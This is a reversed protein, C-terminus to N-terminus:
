VHFVWESRPGFPRTLASRRVTEWGQGLRGGRADREGLAGGERGAFEPQRSYRQRKQGCQDARETVRLFWREGLGLREGDIGVRPWLCRPIHRELLITTAAVQARWLQDRQHAVRWHTDGMMAILLNVMLLFAFVMYSVYLVKIINPTWRQYNIPIDLLGLFLQFMTFLCSSFDRFHPWLDPELTQFTLHFAASLMITFPGLMPFGRGFYILNTWGLVLALSMLIGEGGTETLRLVLITLVLCSYSMIIIHFPGGLATKGFYRRAGYRFIDPIELLLTIIAGVVSIMEGVLRIQDDRSTYAEQLRRQVMVTTDRPDTVNHVRPSLPRHVCCLTFTIIYLIYVLTLLRFYHRGCGEWKLSILEKLPSLDLICLAQPRPSALVLTPISQDDNSSDLHELDYLRTTVGGLRWEGLCRRTMLHQFMVVNGEVAAMKLPTLGQNNPIDGGGGEGGRERELSEILDYTRCCTIRDPQLTLLHFVTNGLSDTARIDAGAAVVARVIEENGTCAAFSLIHEGCYVLAATPPGSQTHPGRTFLNGTARPTQVDGGRAVLERVLRADQNVVAM